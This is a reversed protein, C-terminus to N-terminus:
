NFGAWPTHGLVEIKAGSIYIRESMDYQHKKNDDHCSYLYAEPNLNIQHLITLLYKATFRSFILKFPFSM